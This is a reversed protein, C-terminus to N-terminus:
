MASLLNPGEKSIDKQPNSKSDIKRQEFKEHVLNLYESQPVPRPRLFECGTSPPLRQLMSFVEFM